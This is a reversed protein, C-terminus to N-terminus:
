NTSINNTIIGTILANTIATFPNEIAGSVGGVRNGVSTEWDEDYPPQTNYYLSYRTIASSTLIIRKDESSFQPNTLVVSEYSIISQYIVEYEENEWLLVADMFSSLSNKAATTMSSNAITENLMTEPSHVIAEMEELNAPINMELDLLALDSNSAAIALVQESIQVMTSDQYNGALYAELLKNHFKGAYDYVNESNAPPLSETMRATKESKKSSEKNNISSATDIPDASCSIILLSLIMLYLSINKM